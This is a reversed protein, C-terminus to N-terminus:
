PSASSPASDKKEEVVAKLGSVEWAVAWLKMAAEMHQAGFAEWEATTFIPMHDADVVSYTLLASISGFGHVRPDLADRPENALALRDRMLLPRVIVEGGLEPVEVVSEAPIAPAQVDSKKILPM